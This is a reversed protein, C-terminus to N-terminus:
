SSPRSSGYRRARRQLVAAVALLLSPLWVWTLENAMVAWLRDDPGQGGTEGLPQWPLAFREGSFPSLFAIGEGYTTMADLVGHSVTALAFYAWLRVRRDQWQPGRFAGWTVAAGLLAAFRLSHTFGRHGGVLAEPGLYGFPRSLARSARDGRM